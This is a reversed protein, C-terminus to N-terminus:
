LTSQWSQMEQVNATLFQYRQQQFFMQASQILKPDAVIGAIYMRVYAELLTPFKAAIWSDTQWAGSIINQGYTPYVFATIGICKCNTDVDTLNLTQGAIYYKNPEKFGFYNFDGNSNSETYKPNKHIPGSPTVVGAVSTYDTYLNIKQVVRIQSLDSGLQVSVKGNDVIPNTVYLEKLDQRWLDLSHAASLFGVFATQLIRDIMDHRSHYTAAITVIELPTM